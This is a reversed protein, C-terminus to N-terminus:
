PLPDNQFRHLQRKLHEDAPRLSLARQGQAIASPRDGRQFHVEALTDVYGANTPALEVARAAHKLADDLRRGCRASIWALNNHLTSCQPYEDTWSTYATFVKDFLEDAERRRGKKDLLPILEEALQSNGPSAALALDFERRVTEMDDKAAAAKARARHINAPVRLYDNVNLLYFGARLDDLLSYELLVALEAPHDEARDAMRRIAENWQASEFPATQLVLNFQEVADEELGRDLLEIAMSRRFSSDLAMQSARQKLRRGDEERGARMFSEGAMYLATLQGNTQGNQWASEYLEAARLWQGQKFLADALLFPAAYTKDLLPELMRRAVDPKGARQATEAVAMRISTSRGDNWREAFLEAAAALEDLEDETGSANLVRHVRSMTQTPPEGAFQQRFFMWWGSAELIRQGYLMPYVGPQSDASYQSHTAAQWGRQEDGLQVLALAVQDWCRRRSAGADNEAPQQQAFTEVLDFVQKSEAGLGLMHLLRAVKMAFEVRQLAQATTDGAGATVPLSDLWVRDPAANEPWRALDRAERYQHRYVLLDFARVPHSAMVLKIGEAPRDNLALAEFCLWPLDADNPVLTALQEVDSISREFDASNGALRQYAAALGLQEIRAQAPDRPPNTVPVPLACPGAAQLRAAEAWRRQEVLVAKLLGDDGTQEAAARAKELDGKARWLYTLLRPDENKGAKIREDIKGTLLLLIALRMRGVDDTAHEELWELAEDLKGQQILHPVFGAPEYLVRQLSEARLKDDSELKVIEQLVSMQGSAILAQWIRPNQLISRVWNDRNSTDDAKLVTVLQAALKPDRLLRSSNQHYTLGYFFRQRRQANEQPKYDDIMEMLRNHEVLHDVVAPNFLVSSLWYERQSESPEEKVLKLLVDLGGDAVIAAIADPQNVVNQLLMTRRAPEPEAAILSLLLQGRNDKVLQQISKPATLLRALWYRRLTADSQADALAYLQDLFGRDLLTNLADSHSLLRSILLQKADKESEELVEKVTQDLRGDKALLEIAAHNALLAALLQRRAAPDTESRCLADLEGFQGHQVLTAVTTSSRFLALLAQRRGEDTKQDRVTEFLLQLQKQAVLHEIVKPNTLLQLLRSTGTGTDAEAALKFLDKFLGQAVLLEVTQQSGLLYMCFYRRADPADQAVSQLMAALENRRALDAQVVPQVLLQALAQGRTTANPEQKALAILDNLHGKDALLKVTEARATFAPVVQRRTADDLNRVWEFLNALEDRGALREVVATSTLLQRLFTDRNSRLAPMEALSRLADFHGQEVLADLAASSQFLRYVVQLRHQDDLEGQAFRLLKEAQKQKVLHEVVAPQAYLRALLQVRAAADPEEEALALMPECQGHEVLSPMAYYSGFVRLLYQRRADPNTEDRATQLVVDLQKKEALMKVTAPNGAYLDALLVCRRIRDEDSQVLGHLVDFSGAAILATMAATSRFVPELFRQRAAADSEHAIRLLVDTKKQAVLHEITKPNTLLQALRMSRQTADTTALALEYCADFSGHELLMAMAQSNNFLNSLFLNQGDNPEQRATQLILDLKKQRALTNLVVPQTMLRALTQGRTTAQSDQKALGILDDLHEKEVLIKLSAERSVLSEVVSRRVADESDRVWQILKGTEDRRALGELHSPSSFLRSLLTARYPKLEERMALARLADFEGQKILAALAPESYFLRQVLLQRGEQDAEDRAFRLLTQTEEQKVFREIVAPQAYLQSLLKVRSSGDQEALELLADYHGEQVLLPIAYYSGFLRLLYQRRAEPDAEDRAITLLTDLQKKEALKQLPRLSGAYYGGRLSGRRAADKESEILPLLKDYLDNDVLATMAAGNRFLAELYQQRANGDTEEKALSVLLPLRKADILHQTGDTSAVLRGLVQGRSEPPLTKAMELLTDFRQQDIMLRLMNSYTFFQLLRGREDATADDRFLQLLWEVEGKDRLMEPVNGYSLTSLIINARWPQGKEPGAKLLVWLEKRTADDMRWYLLTGNEALAKLCEGRADAHSEDRVLKFLGSMQNREALHNRVTGTSLLTGLLRGRKVPDKEFAVLSKLGDLGRKEVIAAVLTENQFLQVHVANQQEADLHENAFALLRQLHKEDTLLKATESASVIQRLWIGRTAKDDSKAAMTLLFTLGDKQALRNITAQNSFLFMLMGRRVEASKEGDVFEVLTDLQGKDALRQVVKDTFLLQALVSRRWAEDEKVAVAAIFKPLREAELFHNVATANQLLQVLLARRIEENSELQILRELTAFQQKEALGQLAQLRDPPLGDRFGRILTIVDEPVGPLIGYRFESLIQRARARIEADDSEAAKILAPEAALGQEWLFRTARQREAFKDSGLDHVATDIEQPTVALLAVVLGAWLVGNM